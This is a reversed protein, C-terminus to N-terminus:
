YFQKNKESQSGTICTYVSATIIFSDFTM